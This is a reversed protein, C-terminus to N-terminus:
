NEGRMAGLCLAPWLKQLKPETVNWHAILLLKVLKM